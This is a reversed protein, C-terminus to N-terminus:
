RLFTDGRRLSVRACWVYTSIGLIMTIAGVALISAMPGADSGAPYNILAYVPGYVPIAEPVTSWVRGTYAVVTLLFVMLYVAATIPGLKKFRLTTGCLAFGIGLMAMELGAMLLVLDIIQMQGATGLSYTAYIMASIIITSYLSGTSYRIAFIVATPIRSLFFYELMGFNSEEEVLHSLLGIGSMMLVWLAVAALRRYNEVPNALEAADISGNGLLAGTLGVFMYILAIVVFGGVMAVPYRIRLLVSRKLEAVLLVGIRGMM